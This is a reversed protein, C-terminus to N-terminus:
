KQYAIPTDLYQEWPFITKNKEEDWAERIAKCLTLLKKQMGPAQFMQKNNALTAQYFVEARDEVLSKMANGSTFYRSEGTLYEKNQTEAGYDFGEPNLNPWYDYDPSNGLVHSDVIYGMCRMFESRLDVGETILIYPYKGDWFQVVKQEKDISRVLCIRIKEPASKKLFKSPFERLIPLLDNLMRHIAEPQYEIEVNYSGTHEVAREWVRVIVGNSKNFAKAREACLELGEEDPIEATFMTGFYNTEETVPSKKIEWRLLTKGEKCLLWVCQNWRDAYVDVPTGMDDIIQTATKQGTTKDYFNLVLANKEDVSCGLYGGLEMAGYVATDQVNLKQPDGDLTGVIRQLVTGDTHAVLYEQEYTDLGRVDSQSYMTQGTETSVYYTEGTSVHCGILQGDFYFEGLSLGTYSHTKILRSIKREVDIEFIDQGACYYVAEGDPAVAPLGSTEAPLQLRSSEHLQADLFVVQKTGEDYYAYGNYLTEGDSVPLAFTATPVCDEGTLVMVEPYLARSTLLLQDGVASVSRYGNGPLDYLRLAGNSQTEVDSQPVYYGTENTTTSITTEPAEQTECGSFLLLALLVIWFRKM